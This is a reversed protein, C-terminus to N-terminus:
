TAHNLVLRFHVAGCQVMDMNALQYQSLQDLFQGTM